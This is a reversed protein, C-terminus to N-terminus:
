AYVEHAIGSEPQEYTEIYYKRQSDRQSIWEEASKRDFFVGIFENGGNSFAGAEKFVIHVQTKTMTRNHPLFQPLELRLLSSMSPFRSSRM